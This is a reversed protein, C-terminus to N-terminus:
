YDIRLAYVRYKKVNDVSKYIRSYIHYADNATDGHWLVQKRDKTHQNILDGTGENIKTGDSTTISYTSKANNAVVISAHDMTGDGDWDYFIVERGTGSLNASNAIYTYTFYPEPTGHKSWRGVVTAIHKGNIVTNKLYNKLNDAVTWSYSYKYSNSSVKNHYWIPSQLRKPLGGAYLCQSVYNACDNDDFSKYDSNRLTSSNSVWKNAYTKATTGNFAAAVGSSLTIVMVMILSMAILSKLIKM